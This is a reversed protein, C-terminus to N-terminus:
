INWQYEELHRSAARVGWFLVRTYSSEATYCTVVLKTEDDRFCRMARSCALRRFFVVAVM